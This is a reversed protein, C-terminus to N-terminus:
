DADGGGASTARFWAWGTTRDIGLASEMLGPDLSTDVAVDTRTEVSPPPLAFDGRASLATAFFAHISMREGCINIVGTRNNEACRWIAEACFDVETPSRFINGAWRQAASSAKGMWLPGLRKDFHPARGGFLFSTRVVLGRPCTSLFIDDLAAQAGGYETVPDTRSDERYSGARGSFVADTSLLIPRAGRLSACVQRALRQRDAATELLVRALPLACVVVDFDQAPVAFGARIDFAQSGEIRNSHHTCHLVDAPRARRQLARGLLGSGGLILAKVM